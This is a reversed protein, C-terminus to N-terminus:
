RPKGLPRIEVIEAGLIELAANVAPHQLAEQKRRRSLDDLEPRPRDSGVGPELQVVEIRM